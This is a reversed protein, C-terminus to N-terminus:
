RKWCGPNGQQKEFLSAVSTEGLPLHTQWVGLRQPKIM